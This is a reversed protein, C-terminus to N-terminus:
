PPCAGPRHPPERAAGAVKCHSRRRRRAGAGAGAAGGSAVPAPEAGAAGAVLGGPERADPARRVAAGRRPPPPPPPAQSHVQELLHFPIAARYVETAKWWVPVGLLVLLVYLLVVQARPVGPLPPPRVRRPAQTDADAKHGDAAPNEAAAQEEVGAGAHQTGGDAM